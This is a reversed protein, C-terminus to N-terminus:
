RDTEKAALFTKLSDILLLFALLLCCLAVAYVFPHYIMRLTESTEGRKWVTTAYRASQWGVLLFFLSCVFSNIGHLLRRTRNAYRSALIDVSIHSRALQAYGLPFAVVLAGLFGILEYAGALPSGLPRLMMNICALVTLAILAVGGLWCFGQAVKGAVRDLISIM